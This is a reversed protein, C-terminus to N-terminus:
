QSGGISTIIDIGPLLVATFTFHLQVFVAVIVAGASWLSRSLPALWILGLAVLPILLSIAMLLPQSHLVFDTAPPLPKGNLMDNYIVAFRDLVFALRINPYSVGLVIAIFGFRVARGINKVESEPSADNMGRSHGISEVKSDM